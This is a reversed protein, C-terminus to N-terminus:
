FGFSPKLTVGVYPVLEVTIKLPDRWIAAKIKVITNRPLAGLNPLAVPDFTYESEDIWNGDKDKAKVTMTLSYPKEATPNFQSECYYIPVSWSIYEEYKRGIPEDLYGPIHLENHTTGDPIQYDTIFLGSLDPYPTDPGNTKEDSYTARPLLYEQNAINYFTVDTVYYNDTFSEFAFGGNTGCVSFEFKVAARTIYLPGVTQDELQPSTPRKVFVTHKECMPIWQKTDGSNDFLVGNPDAALTINEITGPVYTDDIADFNYKTAAENAIIYVTKEEGTLDASSSTGSSVKFTMDDYRVVGNDSLVFLKNHEVKGNPRVIIIRLTHIKEYTEPEQFYNYQDPDTVVAARSTAPSTASPAVVSFTLNVMPADEEAVPVVPCDPMNENVCSVTGLIAVTAILSITLRKLIM